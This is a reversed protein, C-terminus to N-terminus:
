QGHRRASPILGENFLIQRGTESFVFDVFLLAEGEPPEPAVFLFPRYLTYTGNQLNAETAAAGDINVAEVGAGEVLGL